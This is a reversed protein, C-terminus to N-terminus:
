KGYKKVEKVSASAEGDAMKINIMDDVKLSSIGNLLDGNENTVISYGKKLINNPNAINIMSSFNNIKTECNNIIKNIKIDLVNKFSNLKIFYNDYINDINQFYKKNKYKLLENEVASIKSNILTDLYGKLQKVDSIIDDINPVALEAAGTPTSAYADAVLDCLSKNIEHGVASIIPTKLNYITRVLQEDDFASLDESAGGGRGIIILDYLKDDTIKLNKILDAAANDGQVLSPILTVRALPFRRNLNYEFDLAAASNKGTIVAISLPYKPLDKKHEEDFLGEKFLKQKLLEKKLFNNGLGNLTINKCIIQYTGSPPYSSISGYVIVDDGNKPEFNLHYSDFKFLVASISSKEDKLTFYIHGSKNRGKYNSIEGKLYIGKLTTTNDFLVKIYENIQSISYYVIEKEM